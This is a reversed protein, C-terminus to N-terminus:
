EGCSSGEGPHCVNQQAKEVSRAATAARAERNAITMCETTAFRSGTKTDRRCVMRQREKNRLISSIADEANRIALRDAVPLSTITDHGELLAAIRGRAGELKKETGRKLNGYQGSYALALTRDINALYVKADTVPQASAVTGDSPAQNGNSAKAPVHTTSVVILLCFLMSFRM